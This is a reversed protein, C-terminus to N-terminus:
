ALVRKRRQVGILGAMASGFLWVAGPVPVSSITLQYDNRIESWDGGQFGGVLITYVEGAQATFTANNGLVDDLILNAVDLGTGGFPNSTTIRIDNNGVALAGAQDYPSHWGGHHSYNTTGTNKGKFVTFGYDPTENIDGSGLLSAISLNVVQNVSSRFLGIDTDHKWGENIGDHWAGKATDIDAYNFTTGDALNTGGYRTNSDFRSVVASEGAGIIATWNLTQTGAYNFDPDTRADNGVWAVPANGAAVVKAPNNSTTPGNGCTSGASGCANTATRMWGDTGNGGSVLAHPASRDHNFANYSVTSAASATSVLGASLATGTIALAIAQTLKNKKMM